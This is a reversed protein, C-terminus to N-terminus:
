PDPNTEDWEKILQKWHQWCEFNDCQPPLPRERGFNNPGCHRLQRHAEAAKTAKGQQILTRIDGISQTEDVEIIPLDSVEEGLEAELKAIAGPRGNDCFYLNVGISQLWAIFNPDTDHYNLDFVVWREKMAETFYSQM